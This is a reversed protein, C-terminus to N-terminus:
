FGGVCRLIDTLRIGSLSRHERQHSLGSRGHILTPAHHPRETLFYRFPSGFIGSAKQPPLDGQNSNLQKIHRKYRTHRRRGQGGLSKLVSRGGVARDDFDRPACALHAFIIVLTKCSVLRLQVPRAVITRSSLRLVRDIPKAFFSFSAAFVFRARM